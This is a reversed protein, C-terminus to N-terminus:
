PESGDVGFVLQLFGNKRNLYMRDRQESSPSGTM